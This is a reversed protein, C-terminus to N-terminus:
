KIVWSLTYNVGHGYENTGNIAYELLPFLLSKMVQAVILHPLNSNLFLTGPM